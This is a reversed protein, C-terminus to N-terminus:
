AAQRKLRFETARASAELYLYLPCKASMLPWPYKMIGLKPLEDLPAVEPAVESVVLRSHAQPLTIDIRCAQIPGPYASGGGGTRVSPLWLNDDPTDEGALLDKSFRLMLDLSLDDM